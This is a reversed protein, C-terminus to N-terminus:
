RGWARAAGLVLTRGTKQAGERMAALGDGWVGAGAFHVAADVYLGRLGGDSAAADLRGDTRLWRLVAPAPAPLADIAVLVGQLGASPTHTAPHELTRPLGGWAAAPDSRRIATPTVCEVPPPEMPDACDPRLAALLCRVRVLEPDDHRVAPSALPRAATVM